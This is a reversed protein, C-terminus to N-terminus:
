LPQLGVKVQTVSGHMRLPDLSDRHALNTQQFGSTEPTSLCYSNEHIVTHNM